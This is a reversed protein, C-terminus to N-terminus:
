PPHAGRELHGAHVLVPCDALGIVKQAVGGVWARAISEHARRGVVLLDAGVSRGAAILAEHPRGVQVVGEAACGLTRARAVATSVVNLAAHREGEGGAVGVVHLPVGCQAAVAAAREVLADDPADPAIGVLVGRSWMRASRPVVLVGCPAHSIVKHVMDGILLNALLGRRGRRRVVILDAGVEQAEEVIEVWPEPGHRVTLDLDVRAQAAMEALAECKRAAAADAEAAVEPAEVEFEPNSLVWIVGALPQGCRAAMAFALAEAGVDFEGHRTALLLRSFPHAM